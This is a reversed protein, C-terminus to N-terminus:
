RFIGSTWGDGWHHHTLTAADLDCCPEDPIPRTMAEVLDALFDAALPKLSEAQDEADCAQQMLEHDSTM